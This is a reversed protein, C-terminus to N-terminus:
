VAVPTQGEATTNNTGPSQSTVIEADVWENNDLVIV